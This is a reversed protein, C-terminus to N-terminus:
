ILKVLKLFMVRYGIYCLTLQIVEPTKYDEITNHYMNEWAEYMEKTHLVNLM